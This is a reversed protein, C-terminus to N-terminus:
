FSNPLAFGVTVLVTDWSYSADTPVYFKNTDFRDLDYRLAAEMSGIRVGVLASLGIADVADEFYTGDGYEENLRNHLLAAGFGVFPRPAHPARAFTYRLDFGYRYQSTSVTFDGTSNSGSFDGPEVYHFSPSISWGSPFRQQLRFGVAFGAGAGFGKETAHDDGLDGLPMVAGGELVVETGYPRAAAEGAPLVLATLLLCFCAIMSLRRM